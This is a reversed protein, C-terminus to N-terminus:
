LRNKVQEHAGLTSDVTEKFALPTTVVERDHGSRTCSIPGIGTGSATPRRKQLFNPTNLDLALVLVFVEEIVDVASVESIKM